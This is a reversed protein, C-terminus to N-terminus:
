EEPEEEIEIDFELLEKCNPCEISGELVMEHTLEITDGCSPCVVEYDDDDCDCCDCEGDECDCCDCDDEFEFEIPEGCNPCEAEGGLITDYTVEVTEGCNSCIVEYVDDDDDNDDDEDDDFLATEVDHLDEDITNCFDVIDDVDADITDVSNCLETLIDSMALLVRGTDTSDDIKLGDMLGKLYQAKESLTM